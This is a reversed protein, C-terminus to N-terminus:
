TDSASATPSSARRLFAAARSFGHDVRQGALQKQYSRHRAEEWDQARPSLASLEPRPVPRWMWDAVRGADRGPTGPPQQIFHDHDRAYGLQNRVFRLGAFTDEIAQRESDDYTALLQAYTDAHYRVLSADVMTVWWVAESIVTFAHRRDWARARLLRDTAHRMATVAWNLTASATPDIANGRNWAIRCRASCFRAHERQPMFETGCQVCRRINAVSEM